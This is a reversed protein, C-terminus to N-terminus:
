DQTRARAALKATRRGMAVIASSVSRPLHGLGRHTANRLKWFFSAEMLRIRETREALEGRLPEVERELDDAVAARARLDDVWTGPIPERQMTDLRGMSSYLPRVGPWKKLLLERADHFGEPLHAFLSNHLCPADLVVVALGRDRAALCLDAGYLHFGLSPDLRLPTDRPLVLVIEDLGDAPAPLPTPMDWLLHRDCVRGISTKTGAARDAGERFTYGFAGAVGIPGLRREAEELQALLRADWGRPLYVDQHVLVVLDHRAQELAAHLGDAASRQDRMLLIEHPTGPALCPSRLLNAELLPDDNVCAVFTIPRIEDPPDPLKRAEIVYQYTDMPAVASDPHVGCFQLLPAAAKVFGDADGPRTRDGIRPLFGADLLLKVFSAYTFFRLHTADLLGSPEYAFDGRLLQKIISYHQVNPLSVLVLGDDALLPRFRRLVDEPDVLHELVDGFLMCDVSGPPLPPTAAQVDLVFVEDLRGRAITAAPEDLEVGAVHRAPVRAKLAEGLRGGACGVELVRMAHSPVAALLRENLSEFYNSPQPQPFM